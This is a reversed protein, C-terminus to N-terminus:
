PAWGPVRSSTRWEGARRDPGVIDIQSNRGLVISPVGEVGEALQRDPDSAGTFPDAPHTHFVAVITSGEVVDPQDLMIHQYSTARARRITLRGTRVDMYIWGGQEIAQPNGHASDDAHTDHWADDLAQQVIETRLLEEVYPARTPPRRNIPNTEARRVISRWNAPRSAAYRQDHSGDAGKLPGPRPSLSRIMTGDELSAFNANLPGPTRGGAM